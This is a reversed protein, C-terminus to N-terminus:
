AFVIASAATASSGDTGGSLQVSAAAPPSIIGSPPPSIALEYAVNSPLTAMTVGSVTKSWYATLDFTTATVNAITVVTLAGDPGIRKAELTLFPVPTKANNTLVSQANPGPLPPPPPATPQTFAQKSVAAPLGNAPTTSQVVHVLGPQTGPTKDTGLITVISAATLGTYTDTEEIKVTFTTQTPDVNPKVASITVKIGNGASGTDAATLTMAPKQTAAPVPVILGQQALDALLSPIFPPVAPTWIKTNVSLQNNHTPDFFLASLPISVQKGTNPDTYELPANGLVTPTTAM